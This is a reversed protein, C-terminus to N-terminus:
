KNEKEPQNKIPLNYGHNNDLTYTVPIKIGEETMKYPLTQQRIGQFIDSLPVGRVRALESPSLYLEM